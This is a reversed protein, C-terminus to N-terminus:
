NPLIWDSKDAIYEFLKVSLNIDSDSKCITKALFICFSM